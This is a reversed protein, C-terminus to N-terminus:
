DVPKSVGKPVPYKKHRLEDILGLILAILLVPILFLIFLIAVVTTVIAGALVVILAVIGFILIFAMGLPLAIWLPTTKAARPPTPDDPAPLYNQESM